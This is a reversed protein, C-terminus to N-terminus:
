SAAYHENPRFAPLDALHGGHDDDEEPVTRTIHHAAITEVVPKVALFLQMYGGLGTLGEFWHMLTPKTALIKTLADAIAASQGSLAGGCHPDRVSWMGAGLMIMIDIEDRVMKVKAASPRKVTTRPKKPAPDPSIDDLDPFIGIEHDKKDTDIPSSSDDDDTLARLVSNKPRAM